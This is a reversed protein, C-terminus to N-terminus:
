DKQGSVSVPSRCSETAAAHQAPHHHEQWTNLAVDATTHDSQVLVITNGRDRMTRSNEPDESVLILQRAGSGPLAAFTMISQRNQQRAPNIPSRPPQEIGMVQRQANRGNVITPGDAAQM